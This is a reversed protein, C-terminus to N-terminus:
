TSKPKSPTKEKFRAQIAKASEEMWGLAWEWKFGAFAALLSVTRWDTKVASGSSALLAVAVVLMSVVWGLIAGILPTVIFSTFWRPRLLGKGIQFQLWYLSKLVAGIMGAFAPHHKIAPLDLGLAVQFVVYYVVLTFLATFLIPVVGYQNNVRWLWQGCLARNLEARAELLAQEVEEPKGVAMASYARALVQYVFPQQLGDAAAKEKCFIGWEDAVVVESALDNLKRALELKRQELESQAPTAAPSGGAAEAKPETKKGGPIPVEDTKKAADGKANVGVVDVQAEPKKEQSTPAASPKKTSDDMANAGAVDAQAEQKREEPIPAGSPNKTQNELKGGKSAV